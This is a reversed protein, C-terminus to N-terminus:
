KLGARKDVVTMNEILASVKENLTNQQLNYQITVYWLPKDAGVYYFVYDYGNEVSIVTTDGYSRGGNFWSKFKEDLNSVDIQEFLGGELGTDESYTDCLNAFSEETKEGQNWMDLYQQGDGSNVVLLRANATSTEDRYRKEFEVIYYCRDTLDEVVTIDGAKREAFIWDQFVSPMYGKTIGTMLFGDTTVTDKKDNAEAEVAAMAVAIEEDTPEESELNASVCLYKYDIADYDDPSDAYVAEVEADTPLCELGLKDYYASVYFANRVYPEMRKETAHDGYNEKIFDKIDKKESEAALKLGESFEEYDTDTNYEFGNAKAEKIIAKQVKISEVAENKFHDEFSLEETYPITSLDGTLDLGMYAMYEGYASIYNAKVVNYNYDFEVRNVEEGDVLIVPATVERVKNIPILAILGVVVVVLVVEFITLLRKQIKESNKEEEMRELKADYKTKVEKSM